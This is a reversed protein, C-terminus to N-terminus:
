KRQPEFQLDGIIDLIKRDEKYLQTNAQNLELNLQIVKNNQVKLENELREVASRYISRTKMADSLDDITYKKTKM